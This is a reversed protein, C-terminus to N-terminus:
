KATVNPTFDPNITIDVNKGKLDKSIHTEINDNDNTTVEVYFNSMEKDSTINFTQTEKNFSFTINAGDEAVAYVRVQYYGSNNYYSKDFPYHFFAFDGYNNNITITDAYDFVISDFKNTEVGLIFDFYNILFERAGWIMEPAWIDEGSLPSEPKINIVINESVDGILNYTNDYEGDEWVAGTTKQTVITGDVDRADFYGKIGNTKKDGDIQIFYKEYLNHGSFSLRSFKNSTENNNETVNTTENNSPNTTTNKIPKQNEKNCGFLTIVMVLIMLMSVIKKM